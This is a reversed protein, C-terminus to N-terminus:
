LRVCLRPAADVEVAVGPVEPRARTDGFKLISERILAFLLYRVDGSLSAAIAHGCAPRQAGTRASHRVTLSRYCQASIIMNKLNAIFYELNMHPRYKM